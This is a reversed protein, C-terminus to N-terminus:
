LWLVLQRLKEVINVSIFSDYIAYPYGLVAFKLNVKTQSGSQRNPVKLLEM